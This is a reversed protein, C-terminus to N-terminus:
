EAKQKIRKKRKRELEAEKERKKENKEVKGERWTMARRNEPRGNSFHFSELCSPM